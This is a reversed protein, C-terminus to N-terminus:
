SVGEVLLELFLGLIGIRFSWLLSSQTALSLFWAMRHWAWISRNQPAAELKMQEWGLM